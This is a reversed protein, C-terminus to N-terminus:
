FMEQPRAALAAAIKAKIESVAPALFRNTATLRGVGEVNATVIFSGNKAIRYSYPLVDALGASISELSLQEM